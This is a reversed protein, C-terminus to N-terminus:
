ELRQDQIALELTEVLVLTEDAKLASFEYHVPFAQSFVWTLAATARDESMLTVKVTRYADPVGNKVQQIWAYLDLAGIVGRKLTLNSYRTLGPLKRPVTLKDNGSRYEVVDITMQPLIVESFGAQVSESEGTGLDVLFNYGLYPNDRQQAM